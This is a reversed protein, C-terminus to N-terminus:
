HSNKRKRSKKGVPTIKQNEDAPDLPLIPPLTQEVFTNEIHAALFDDEDSLWTTNYPYELVTDENVYRRDLLDLFDINKIFERGAEIFASEDDIWVKEQFLHFMNDLKSIAEEKARPLFIRIKEKLPVTVCQHLQDLCYGSICGYCKQRSLEQVREAIKLVIFRKFQYLMAAFALNYNLFHDMEISEARKNVM